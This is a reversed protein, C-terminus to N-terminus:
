FKQTIDLGAENDGGNIKTTPPSIGVVLEEEHFKHELILFNTSSFVINYRKYIMLTDEFLFM